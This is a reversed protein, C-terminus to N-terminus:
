KKSYIKIIPYQVGMQIAPIIQFRGNTYGLSAGLGLGITARLRPEKQNFTRINLVASTDDSVTKLRLQPSKFLNKPFRHPQYYAYFDFQGHYQYSLLIKRNGSNFIGQLKFHGTTDIINYISSDFKDVTAYITDLEKVTLTVQKVDKLNKLKIDLEGLQLRLQKFDESQSNLLEKFYFERNLNTQILQNKENILREIISDKQTLRAIDKNSYSINNTYCSRIQMVALFFLALAMLWSKQM